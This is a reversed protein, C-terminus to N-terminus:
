CKTCSQVLALEMVMAVIILTLASEVSLAGLEFFVACAVISM